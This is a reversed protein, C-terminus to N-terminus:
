RTMTGPFQGRERARQHHLRQEDEPGQRALRERRRGRRASLAARRTGFPSHLWLETRLLIDCRRFRGSENFRGFTHGDCSETQIKASCATSRWWHSTTLPKTGVVTLRASPVKTLGTASGSKPSTTSRTRGSVRTRAGFRFIKRFGHHARAPPRGAPNTPLKASLIIADHADLGTADGTGGDRPTGGGVDTMVLVHGPPPHARPVLDTRERTARADGVV